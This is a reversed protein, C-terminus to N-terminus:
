IGERVVSLLTMIFAASALIKAIAVGLRDSKEDLHDGNRLSIIEAANAHYVSVAKDYGSQDAAAYNSDIVLETMYPLSGSRARETLMTILKNRLTRSRLSELAPLIRLALWHTLGPLPLDTSREQAMALLRMAMISRNAALSPIATLEHLRIEHQINIKAAIFAAIHRDLPDQTTAMNHALNDLRKLLMELNTVHYTALLPSLCPLDPNLEYLMRELGFGLGPNRICIRLRELKMLINNTATPIAYEPLKRQQELWFGVMNYEAFRALLQLDPEAKNAYLEAFLADIGDIHLSLSTLRVPGQPDFIILVRMLQEHLQIENKAGIDKVSRSIRAINEALDKNRLSISIWQVLHGNHLVEPILAWNAYFIHAVERKTNAESGGFEFPRMAEAPPPPLLVNFRKGDLWPKLYNYDWRDAANQVLLGRFFEDFMASNEKDRMMANYGGQRLLARALSEPTRDAFHRPGHQLYLVLIALAYYDQSPSGEGKGAPLAQLRELSEFIFPQSYGCPESVCDGLVPTHHYYINDPNIRGHAIDFQALQHIAAVIPGIIEKCLFYENLEGKTAALLESIKKGVPREYFIVFRQEQPQSMEVAGAAVLPLINPHRINKLAQIARHRQYTGPRCVLAYLKREPEVLDSAAFARATKTDFEPLPAVLDIRWRGSLVDRATDGASPTYHRLYDGLAAFQPANSKLETGATDTTAM